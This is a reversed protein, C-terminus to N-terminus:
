DGLIDNIIERVEKPDARGGTSEMVKGVLYNMAEEKGDRYDKAAEEEKN